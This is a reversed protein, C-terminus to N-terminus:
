PQQAKVQALAREFIARGQAAVEDPDRGDERCEALIEEDSMRMIDEAFANALNDLMQRATLPPRMARDVGREIKLQTLRDEPPQIRDKDYVAKSRERIAEILRNGAM